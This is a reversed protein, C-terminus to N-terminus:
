SLWFINRSGCLHGTHGMFHNKPSQRIHVINTCVFKSGSHLLSAQFARNKSKLSSAIQKFDQPAPPPNTAPIQQRNDTLQSDPEYKSGTSTYVEKLTGAHYKM